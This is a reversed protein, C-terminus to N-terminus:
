KGSLGIRAKLSSVRDRSLPLETENALKLRCTGSFWPIIERLFDLNIITARNIQFFGEGHLLEEMETITRNILYRDDRTVAFVLKDEITIYYIEKPSLLMVRKGKHVGLRSVSSKYRIAEPVFPDPRDTLKREMTLARRARSITKKVRDPSIPKLLFDLANAEFARVAQHHHVSTLVIESLPRLRGVIDLEDIGPMELDLFILDPRLRVLEEATAADGAEALIQVGGETRLIHRLQRRTCEDDGALVVRMVEPAFRNQYASLPEYKDAAAIPNYSM